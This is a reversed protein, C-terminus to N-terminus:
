IEGITVTLGGGLNPTELYTIRNVIFNEEMSTKLTPFEQDTTKPTASYSGEYAPYGGGTGKTGVELEVDLTIDTTLEVDLCRCNM